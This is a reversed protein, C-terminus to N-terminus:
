DRRSRSRPRAQPRLSQPRLAEPQVRLPLGDGRKVVIDSTHFVTQLALFLEGIPVDVSFGSGAIISLVKAAMGIFAVFLKQNKTKPWSINFAM